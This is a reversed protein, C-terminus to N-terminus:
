GPSRTDGSASPGRPDPRLGADDIRAGLLAALKPDKAGDESTQDKQDILKDLAAKMLGQSISLLPDM